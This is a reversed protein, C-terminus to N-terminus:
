EWWIPQWFFSYRQRLRLTSDDSTKEIWNQEEMDDLGQSCIGKCFNATLGLNGKECNMCQVHDLFLSYGCCLLFWPFLAHFILSSFIRLHSKMWPDDTLGRVLHSSCYWICINAHNKPCKAVSISMSLSVIGFMFARNYRLLCCTAKMIWELCFLLYGFSWYSFASPYCSDSIFWLRNCEHSLLFGFWVM